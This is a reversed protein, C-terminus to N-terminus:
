LPQSYIFTISTCIPIPKDDVTYPRYRWARMERQIKADYAPFSTSKKMTVSAVSGETTLCMIFSGVLKDKGSHKIEQKTTDDPYPTRNGSLFQEEIATPPV